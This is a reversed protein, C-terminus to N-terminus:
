RVCKLCVMFLRQSYVQLIFLITYIKILKVKRKLIGSFFSYNGKDTFILTMQLNRLDICIMKIGNISKIYDVKNLIGVRNRKDAKFIVMHENQHLGKLLKHIKIDRNSLQFSNVYLQAIHSLSSKLKNNNSKDILRSKMSQYTSAISAYTDTKSINPPPMSNLM